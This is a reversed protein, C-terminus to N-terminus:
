DNEIAEMATTATPSPLAQGKWHPSREPNSFDWRWIASKGRELQVSEPTLASGDDGKDRSKRTLIGHSHIKTFPFMPVSLLFGGVNRGKRTSDNRDVGM